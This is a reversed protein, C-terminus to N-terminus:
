APPSMEHRGTDQMGDALSVLNELDSLIRRKRMSQPFFLASIFHTSKVSKPLSQREM